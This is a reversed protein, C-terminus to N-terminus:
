GARPRSSSAATLAVLAFLTWLTFAPLWPGPIVARGAFLTELTPGALATALGFPGWFVQTLGLLFPEGGLAALLTYLGVWGVLIALIWRRRQGHTAINLASILLYLLQPGLIAAIWAAPSFRALAAGHGFLLATTATAALFILSIALLATSGAGVRLLDHRRRDIPMAWHYHRQKGKAGRWVRGTFFCGILLLAGVTWAWAGLGEDVGIASLRPLEVTIEDGSITIQVGVLVGFSALALAQVLLYGTGLLFGLRPPALLLAMQARFVTGLSPIPHDPRHSRVLPSM